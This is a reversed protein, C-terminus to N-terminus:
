VFVFTAEFRMADGNQDVADTEQFETANLRYTVSTRNSAVNVDAVSSRVFLTSGKLGTGLPFDRIDHDNLKQEGDLRVLSSGLQADGIIVSLLVAEDAGVPILTPNPERTHVKM